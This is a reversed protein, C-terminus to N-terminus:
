PHSVMIFFVMCMQVRWSFIERQLFCLIYCEPWDDKTFYQSDSSQLFDNEDNSNKIQCNKHLCAHKYNNPIISYDSAHTCLIIILDHFNAYKDEQITYKNLVKLSLKIQNNENTCNVVISNLQEIMRHPVVAVEEYIKQCGSNVRQSEM